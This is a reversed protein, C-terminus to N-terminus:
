GAKRINIGGVKNELRLSYKENPSISGRIGPFTNRVITGKTYLSVDGPLENLTIDIVGSTTALSINSQVSDNKMRITGTGIKVNTNAYINEFLVTALEANINVSSLFGKQGNFHVFSAGGIIELSKIQGAPLYVKLIDDNGPRGAEAAVTMAGGSVSHSIEFEASSPYALHINSDASPEIYIATFISDLKVSNIGASNINENEVKGISDFVKQTNKGVMDDAYGFANNLIDWPLSFNINVATGKINENPGLNSGQVDVKLFYLVAPLM